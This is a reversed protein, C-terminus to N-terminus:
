IIAITTRQVIRRRGHLTRLILTYHGRRLQRVDRTLVLQWRRAGKRVAVGIAYVTDARMVTARLRDAGIVFKVRGSVLRTTCKQVTVRHTHGHTTITRTVKKCVVLEIKGAPGRPGTAGGPGTSGAAGQQLSGGTGTLSVSLGGSSDNSAIQLTATRAGQGQPAFAVVVQCSRGPAILGGCTSSEVLFDEPHDTQAAPSSGAFSLGSVILPTSGPGNTITITQGPSLMGQPTASFALSPTSLQASAVAWIIEVEPAQGSLATGTTGGFPVLSSGGGGGGASVCPNCQGMGGGGGGGFLGGGGGGGGFNPGNGGSGGAGSAGSSGSAGGGIGGAGGSGVAGQTGGGGGFPATAGAGGSLGGGDGGGGGSSDSSGGGGGGGAVILRTSLSDSNARPLTRVDSAGGGAGGSQVAGGGGNFSPPEVSGSGPGGSAGDGGVEVYLAEGPFVAVEGSAVGGLGGVGGGLGGGGSGGIAMVQLVSVGAPVTFTQEAGTSSFTVASTAAAAGTPSLSWLGLLSAMALLLRGAARARALWVGRLVLDWFVVAGGRESEDCGAVGM